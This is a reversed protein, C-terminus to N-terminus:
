ESFGTSLSTEEWADLLRRRADLTARYGELADRGLVLLAPPEAAEVAAIM